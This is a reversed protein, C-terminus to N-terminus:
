AVVPRRYPWLLREWGLPLENLAVGAAVAERHEYMLGIDLLMAQRLPAPVAAGDDGYGATFVITVADPRGGATPWRWSLGEGPLLDAGDVGIVTWDLNPSATGLAVRAGTPDVYAIGDVSLVPQKPLRIRGSEATPFLSLSLEWQQAVLARDTEVEIRQRAAVILDQVLADDEHAPPSGAADLRLHRRAQDLSVPEAAPPQLLRLYM